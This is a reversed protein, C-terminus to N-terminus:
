RLRFSTKAFAVRRPTASGDCLEIGFVAHEVRRGTQEGPAGREVFKGSIKAGLVRV